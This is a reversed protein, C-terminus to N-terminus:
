PNRYLKIRYIGFASMSPWRRNNGSEDGNLRRGPLWRGDVYISEDFSALVVNSPGPTAATFKVSLGAGVLVFEDPGVAIVIAGPFLSQPAAPPQAVPPVPPQGVAPTATPQAPAAGRAGGRGGAGERGGRGGRGDRGGLTGGGTYSIDLTYNGLKQQVQAPAGDSGGAPPLVVITGKGQNELIVPALYSLVAYTQGLPDGGPATASFGVGGSDIGFPAFGMANYKLIAALANVAGIAGGRAEPIFFPNGARSYLACIEEFNTLYIDPSLFDIQPAGARWLDHVQAVPGGSPFAGPRQNASQVLWANAYMPLPYEAKGAAAVQGVYQAYNWAMFILDTEVGKGFVEQWTGATKAGAAEWVKRFEPILTDKHQQLYDTLQQSVPKGFAENAAASRDRSDGLVGCENEVQMAIVTHQQGDVERIHRMLAAFARADANRSAEGLTSLINRTRGSADQVLPFRKRDTKVWYPVYSSEGNKWSGFWLLMLRMNYRRADQILPDVLTFDFKGEEPETLEWSVVALVTNLNMQALRPWIPEMYAMSSSSSNHLEGALALFPKGDVILQTVAGRKELHPIGPVAGTQAHAVFPLVSSAFTCCVIIRLKM